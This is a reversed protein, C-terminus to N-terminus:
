SYRQKFPIVRVDGETFYRGSACVEFYSDEEQWRTAVNEGGDWRRLLKAMVDDFCCYRAGREKMVQMCQRLVHVAESSSLLSLIFEPGCGIIQDVMNRYLDTKYNWHVRMDSVCVGHVRCTCGQLCPELIDHWPLLSLINRYVMQLHIIDCIEWRLCDEYIHCREVLAEAWEEKNFFMGQRSEWQRLFARYFRDGGIGPLIREVALCVDAKHELVYLVDWANPLTHILGLDVSQISVYAALFQPPYRSLRVKFLQKKYIDVHVRFFHNTNYLQPISSAPVYSLISV